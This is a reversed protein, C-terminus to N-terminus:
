AAPPRLRRWLLTAAAAVVAILALIIALRVVGTAQADRHATVAQSVKGAAGALDGDAFLGAATGLLQRPTPAGLLGLREIPNPDSGVEDLATRYAAVLAAEAQLEATATPDGGNSRWLDRLRGPTALGAARVDAIFADRQELWALASAMGSRADAFHWGAMLSQIADPVGWDGAASSLAAYDTRAAARQALEQSDSVAFVEASFLADLDRGSVQELQDLFRRSDLPLPTGAAAGPPSGPTLPQYAGIGESARLLVQQLSEQGVIAAIRNALDWSAAYAWTDVRPDIAAGPTASSWTSLPIAASANAQAQRAPDFPRALGLQQATRGAVESAIGERIWRDGILAVGLWVHAAQHLVTFPAALYSVAIEQAGPTPESLQDAGVPLSESVVMPGVGTYPLGIEEQLAPLGTTLLDLTKTGWGPDDNWARVQLDMTGGALPVSRTVTTYAGPTTATLIALWGPPDAIPGSTLVTGTATTAQALASGRVVVSFGVPLQVSVTGTTGFCWVPVMVASAGVRVQPNAGSPLRYEVTFSATKQYRLATRLTVTAKTGGSGSSLSAALTGSADTATLTTAGDQVAIPVTRFVSYRGAPNPTTNTFTVAVSIDVSGAAPDVVYTAVTEMTYPEAARAGPATSLALVSALVAAGLVFLCPFRTTPHGRGPTVAHRAAV